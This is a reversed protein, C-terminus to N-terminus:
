GPADGEEGPLKGGESAAGAAPNDITASDNSERCHSGVPRATGEADTAGGNHMHPIHSPVPEATVQRAIPPEPVIENTEQDWDKWGNKTQCTVIFIKRGPRPDGYRAKYLQTVESRGAIPPPLLGLYAINRRKSRGSPCPEQGFVMIDTTLEGSVALWLRVGDTTNEIILRGAPSPDFLVPAPPELDPALGVVSRVNSISQWFQQGSLPGKQGLRPHSMVKAGAACWRHRQDETLKGSWMRSNRGFQGRVRECAPTRNTRPVVYQRLCLGFASQFAVILGRKGSQPVDIIKM